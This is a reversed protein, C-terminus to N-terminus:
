ATLLGYSLRVDVLSSIVSSTRLFTLSPSVDHGIPMAAPHNQSHREVSGGRELAREHVSMADREEPTLRNETGQPAVSEPLFSNWIREVMEGEFPTTFVRTPEAATRTGRPASILNSEAWAGRELERQHVLLARREDPTFSDEAPRRANRQPLFSNWMHEVTEGDFPTTAQAATRTGRPEPM